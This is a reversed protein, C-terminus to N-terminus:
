IAGGRRVDLLASCDYKIKRNPAAALEDPDRDRRTCTESIGDQSCEYTEKKCNKENWSHKPSCSTWTSSKDAEVTLSSSGKKDTGVNAYTAFSVISMKVAENNLNVLADTIVRAAAQLANMRTDPVSYPTDLVIAIEAASPEGYRAASKTGIQMSSTGVPQMISTTMDGDVELTILDDNAEM